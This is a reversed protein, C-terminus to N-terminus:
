FSSSIQESPKLLLMKRNYRLRFLKIDKYRSEANKESPLGHHMTIPFDQYILSSGLRYRMAPVPLYYWSYRAVIQRAITM